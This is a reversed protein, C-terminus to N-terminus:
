STKKLNSGPYGRHICISDPIIEKEIKRTIKYINEPFESQYRIISRGSIKRVKEKLLKKIEHGSYIKDEFRITTMPRAPLRIFKHDFTYGSKNKTFRLECFGKVENVEQYSTREISGPYLMPVNNEINRLLQYRHIHGSLYCTYDESLDTIRIVDKNNRFTYNHKGVQAGEVAHHFLMINLDDPDIESKFNNMMGPFANRLDGYFYPFGSVSVPHDKVNIHFMKAKYFNYINSHQLYISPPLIGREHNGAVIFLPIGADAIELLKFYTKDILSQKVTPLDFLDGGHFVIDPKTKLIHKVILEFNRFFDEGRHQRSTRPKLPHDYGIHTDSFLVARVTEM